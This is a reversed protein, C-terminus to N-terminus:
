IKGGRRNIEPYHTSVDNKNVTIQRHSAVAPTHHSFVSFTAATEKSCSVNKVKM